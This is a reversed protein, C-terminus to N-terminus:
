ARPVLGFISSSEGGPDDGQPDREGVLVVRLVDRRVDVTLCVELDREPVADTVIRFARPEFEGDFGDASLEAPTRNVREFAAVDPLTETGAGRYWVDIEVPTFGVRRGDTLEVSLEGRELWLAEIALPGVGNAFLAAREASAFGRHLTDLECNPRARARWRVRAAFSNTPM